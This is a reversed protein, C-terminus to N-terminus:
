HRCCCVSLPICVLEDEICKKYWGDDVLGIHEERYQLASDLRVAIELLEKEDETLRDTITPRKPGM